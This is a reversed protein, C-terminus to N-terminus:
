TGWAAFYALTGDEAGGGAASGFLGCSMQALAVNQKLCLQPKAAGAVQMTGGACYSDTASFGHLYNVTWDGAGNDTISSVNRSGQLTGSMNFVCWVRAVQEQTPWQRQNGGNTWMAVLVRAMDALTGSANSAEATLRIASATPTTAAKVGCGSGVAAADIRTLVSVAYNDTSGALIWNVTWDGTGNDTISSCNRHYNIAVTGTGNFNVMSQLVTEGQPPEPNRIVGLSRMRSM